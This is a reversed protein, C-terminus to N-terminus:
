ATTQMEVEHQLKKLEEELKTIENKLIHPENSSGAAAFLSRDSDTEDKDNDKRMRQPNSNILAELTSHHSSDILSRVTNRVTSADLRPHHQVHWDPCVEKLQAELEKCFALEQSTLLLLAKNITAIFTQSTESLPLHTEKFDEMDFTILETIYLIGRRKLTSKESKTLGSTRNEDFVVDNYASLCISISEYREVLEAEELQTRKIKLCMELFQIRDESRQRKLEAVRAQWLMDSERRLERISAKLNDHRTARRERTCHLTGDDEATISM